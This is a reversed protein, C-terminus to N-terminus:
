YGSGYTDKTNESFVDSPTNKKEKAEPEALILSLMASIREAWVAKERMANEESQGVYDIEYFWDGEDKFVKYQEDSIYIGKM